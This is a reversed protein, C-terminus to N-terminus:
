DITNRFIKNTGESYLKVSLQTEDNWAEGAWIQTAEHIHLSKEPQCSLPDVAKEAPRVCCDTM